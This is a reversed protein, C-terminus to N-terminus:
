RRIWAGHAAAIPIVAGSREGLHLGAFARHLRRLGRSVTASAWCPADTQASCSASSPQRDDDGERAVTTLTRSACEGLALARIVTSVADRSGASGGAGILLPIFFSGRDERSDVTFSRLVTGTATRPWSALLVLWAALTQVV